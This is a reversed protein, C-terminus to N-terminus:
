IHPVFQWFSIEADYNSNIRLWDGEDFLHGYIDRAKSKYPCWFEDNVCFIKQTFQGPQYESDKITDIDTGFHNALGEAGYKAM